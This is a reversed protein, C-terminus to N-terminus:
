HLWSLKIYGLRVALVSSAVGFLIGVAGVISVALGIHAAEANYIAQLHDFSVSFKAFQMAAGVGALWLITVALWDTAIENDEPQGPTKRM